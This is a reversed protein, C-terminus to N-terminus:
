TIVSHYASILDATRLHQLPLFFYPYWKVRM